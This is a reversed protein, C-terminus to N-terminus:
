NTNEEIWKIIENYIFEYPVFVNIKNNIISNKSFDPCYKAFIESTCYIIKVDWDHDLNYLEIPIVTQKNINNDYNHLYFNYDIAIDFHYTYAMTRIHVVKINQNDMIINSFKDSIEQLINYTNEDVDSRDKQEIIYNYLADLKNFKETIM